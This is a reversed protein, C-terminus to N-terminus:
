RELLNEKWYKIEGDEFIDVMRYFIDFFYRFGEKKEYKFFSRRRFAKRELATMYKNEFTQQYEWSFQHLWCWSPCEEGRFSDIDLSIWGVNQRLYNFLSREQVNTFLFKTM